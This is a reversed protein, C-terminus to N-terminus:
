RMVADPDVIAARWSPIITAVTYPVVALFFLAAVQSVDLYPKISFHPYLVAWGKLVPEFLGASTLAVHAYALLVGPLFATLSIALGEWCKMQIVDATEWGIAKLVGIERREEMSMGSAKDWALLIFALVSGSLIAILIGGRWNFVADYTRLIEERLIQRTDPLAEAIKYAITPLEKPNRVQVALDTVLERPMGFLGRFDEEAVLVLDSSVLGLEAPFIRAIKLEKLSGDHTRFEIDDGVASLRLRALGEGVAMTGPAVERSEPVLLTYNAGVVPDYYYGWLRGRAAQVGRIKKIKELYALPILEHRGAVQRQVIMEPAGQLLDAAERQLSRSFFVVSALLFVILTYVLVLVANKRKRRLLAALTYDLINKQREIRAGM